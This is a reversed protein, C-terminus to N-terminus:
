NYETQDRFNLARAKSFFLRETRTCLLTCRPLSRTELFDTTHVHMHFCIFATGSELFWSMSGQFSGDRRFLFDCFSTVPLSM